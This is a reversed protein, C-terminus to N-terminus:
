ELRYKLSDDLNMFADFRPAPSPLQLRTKIQIVCLFTMLLFAPNLQFDSIVLNICNM